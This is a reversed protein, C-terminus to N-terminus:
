RGGLNVATGSVLPLVHLVGLHGDISLRIKKIWKM